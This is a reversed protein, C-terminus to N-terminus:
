HPSYKDVLAVAEDHLQKGDLGKASVEKIWEDTVPKAAAQWKAMEAAPIPFIKNGNKVTAKLGADDGLQMQLTFWASAERGSNRDIVAKLDAPLSNYKKANMIFMMTTATM